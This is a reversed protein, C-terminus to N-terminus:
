KYHGNRLANPPSESVEDNNSIDFNNMEVAKEMLKKAEKITTVTKKTCQQISWLRANLLHHTKM